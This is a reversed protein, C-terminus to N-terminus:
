KTNYKIQNTYSIAMAFYSYLMFYHMLNIHFPRQTYCAAIILSGYFVDGRGKTRIITILLPLYLIISGLIGDKAFSELYNDGVYEVEEMYKAGNGIIPSQYFYIRARDALENRGYDGEKALEMREFTLEYLKSDQGGQKYVLWAAAACILVIPLSKFVHKHYFVLFYLVLLVYYALSLTCFLCSILIYEIKKNKFFVRNFVLAFIGWTALAGPEDFYGAMRALNGYLVNTSSIGFFYAPRGDINTFSFLPSIAGVFCLIFALMALVSQITIWCTNFYTFKSLVNAKCFVVLSYYICITFVIRTIYSTDAHLFFYLLWIICQILVCTLIRSDLQTKKRYRTGIIFIYALLAGVVTVVGPLPLLKSFVYPYCSLLAAFVPLLLFFDKKDQKSFSFHPIIRM